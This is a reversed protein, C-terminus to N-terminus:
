SLKIIFKVENKLGDIKEQATYPELVKIVTEFVKMKINKEPWYDSSEIIEPIVTLLESEINIIISELQKAKRLSAPDSKLKLEEISSRMPIIVTKYVEELVSLPGNFITKIHLFTNEYYWNSDFNDKSHCFASITKWKYDDLAQSYSIQFDIGFINNLHLM